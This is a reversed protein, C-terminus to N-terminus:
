PAVEIGDAPQVVIPPNVGAIYVRTATFFAGDKEYGYEHFGQLIGTTRDLSTDTARTVTVVRGVDDPTLRPTPYAPSASNM